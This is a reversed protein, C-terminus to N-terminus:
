CRTATPASSRSARPTRRRCRSPPWGSGRRRTAACRPRWGLDGGVSQRRHRRVTRRALRRPGPPLSAARRRVGPASTTPRPGSSGPSAHRHQVARRGDPSLALGNSLTLDDDIVTVGGDGDLRYSSEEGARGDLALSGVLFRGAPDCAGDNLRSAKDTPFSSPMSRRRSATGSSATAARRAGAVLLQGDRTACWRASRRPSGCSRTRSRRLRRRSPRRAGGRRQHRGVAGAGPGRGLRARAWNTAASPPSRPGFVSENGYASSYSAEESGSRRLPTGHRLLSALLPVAPGIAVGVDM